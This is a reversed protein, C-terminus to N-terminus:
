LTLDPTWSRRQSYGIKLGALSYRTSSIFGYINAMKDFVLKM